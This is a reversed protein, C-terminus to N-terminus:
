VNNITGVSFKKFFNCIYINKTQESDLILYINKSLM